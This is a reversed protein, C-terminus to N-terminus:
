FKITEGYKILVVTRPYHALSIIAKPYFSAAYRTNITCAVGDVCVNCPWLTADDTVKPEGLKTIKLEPKKM